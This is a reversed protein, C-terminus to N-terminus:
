KLNNEIESLLMNKFLLLQENYNSEFDDLIINYKELLYKENKLYKNHLQILNSKEPFIKIYLSIIEELSLKNFKKNKDEKFNSKDIDNFFDFLTISFYDCIKELLQLSPRNVGTEIKSITQQAINLDKAMKYASTNNKNRLDKIKEGYNYM